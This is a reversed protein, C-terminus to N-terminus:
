LRRCGWTTGRYSVAQSFMCYMYIKTVRSVDWQRLDRNFSSAHAFMWCMNTVNSVDWRGIDGNFQSARRFMARMNKVSGVNWRSLDGNFLSAGHFMYSMSTVKSVDWQSIDGNFQAARLFFLRMDTVNGVNWRSIDENFESRDYFARAMNTVRSTNWHSIHGFRLKCKEKNEFWLAIAEHFNEDTLIEDLFSNILVVLDLPLGINREMLVMTVCDMRSEGLLEYIKLFVELFNGSNSSNRPLQHIPQALSIKSL